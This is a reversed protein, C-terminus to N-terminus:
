LATQHLGSRHTSVYIQEDLTAKLPVPHLERLELSGLVSILADLFDPCRTLPFGALWVQVETRM